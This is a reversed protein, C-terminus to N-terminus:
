LASGSGERVPDVPDAAAMRRIFPRPPKFKSVRRYPKRTFRRPVFAARTVSGSEPRDEPEPAPLESLLVAAPVETPTPVRVPTRALNARIGDVMLLLAVLAVLVIFVELQIPERAVVKLFLERLDDAPPAALDIM